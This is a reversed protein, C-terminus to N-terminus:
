PKSPKWGYEKMIDPVEEIHVAYSKPATKRTLEKLITMKADTYYDGDVIVIFIVGKDNAKKFKSLIDQMEIFANDQGGGVGQTHKHMAYIKYNGWEWGFDLSKSPDEEKEKPTKNVIVGKSNVYLANERSSPLKKIDVKLNKILWERAVREHMGTRGPTKAFTAAFMEDEKIKTTVKREGYGFHKVYAAIRRLLNKNDNELLDPIEKAHKLWLRKEEKKYDPPKFPM